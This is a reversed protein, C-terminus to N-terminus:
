LQQDNQLFLMADKFAREYIVAFAKAEYKFIEDLCEKAETSELMGDLRDRVDFQEKSLRSFDLTVDTENLIQEVRSCCFNTFDLQFTTEM